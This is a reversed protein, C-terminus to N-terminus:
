IHILSLPHGNEMWSIARGLARAEGRRLPELLEASPSMRGPHWVLRGPQLPVRAGPRTSTGQLRPVPRVPVLVM